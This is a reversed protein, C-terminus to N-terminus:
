KNQLFGCGSYKTAKSYCVDHNRIHAIPILYRIQDTNREDDYSCDHYCKSYNLKRIRANVYM